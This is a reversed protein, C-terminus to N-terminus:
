GTQRRNLFATVADTFADNRDGAVMHGAGAVDVFEAHKVLTMFESAAEESVLDSIRGRVLLTPITLAQAAKIMRDPDRRHRPTRVGTVFRPDWHWRYRGDDGLRLNKELGSLDTPRPRHPLYEAVADAAEELSAFGDELRASMFNLIRDVGEQEVRPTIDVLVLAGFVNEDAEGEAILAANGGLSAGVVSPPVEFTAAVSRLDSAFADMTYNSDPSWSSDGHGRQDVAIAYWGEEALAAATAGWAFRTQGGGHALIVANSDPTGYADGVITLGDETEFVVRRPSEAM